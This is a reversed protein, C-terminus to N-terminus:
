VVAFAWPLVAGLEMVEFRLGLAAGGQGEGSKAVLAHAVAPDVVPPANTTAAAPEASEPESEDAAADAPGPDSKGRSGLATDDTLSGPEAAPKQSACGLAFVCVGLGLLLSAARM